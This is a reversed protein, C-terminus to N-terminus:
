RLHTRVNEALLADSKDARAKALHEQFDPRPPDCAIMAAAFQMEASIPDLALAKQVFTYGNVGATLDEKYKWQMQKLTEVAFGYDFLALGNAKATRDKLANLLTSIARHDREGYIVARRLTEMRVIVPAGSDLINLTDTALRGTDYGPEAHDWRDSSNHTWPLSRASGINYPQCILPPGAQAAFTALVFLLTTRM